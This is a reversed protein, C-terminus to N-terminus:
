ITAFTLLFRKKEESSLCPPMAISDSALATEMRKRDFRVFSAAKDAEPSTETYHTKQERM